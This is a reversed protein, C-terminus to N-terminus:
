RIRGDAKIHTLESKPDPSFSSWNMNVCLNPTIQRRRKCNDPITSKWTDSEKSVYCVDKVKWSQGVVTDIWAKLQRGAVNVSNSVLNQLAEMDKTLSLTTRISYLNRNAGNVQDDDEVGRNDLSLQTDGEIAKKFQSPSVYFHVEACVKTFQRQVYFKVTWRGPRLPKRLSLPTETVGASKSPTRFDSYDAVVNLPDVVVVTVVFDETAKRWRAVLRPESNPGIIGGWDRLVLEKVDWDTGVSATEIRSALQSSSDLIRFM